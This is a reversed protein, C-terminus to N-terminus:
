GVRHGLTALARRTQSEAERLSGAARELESDLERVVGDYAIRAVGRWQAPPPEAQRSRIAQEAQGRLIALGSLQQELLIELVKTTTLEAPEM